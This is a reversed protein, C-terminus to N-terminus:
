TINGILKSLYNAVYDTSFYKQYTERGKNAIPSLEKQHLYAWRISEALSLPDGQDALLCNERDQFKKDEYGKGIVTASNCCLFQLTKGTIVRKGQETNGFPGGLCLDAARIYDPLEHFDIWPIHNVNDLQNNKITELFGKLAKGKGGAVIFKIPLDKLVEVASLIIDMGHLPLFTAYTFVVFNDPQEFIKKKGSPSFLKEDCSMPVVTFKEIPVNFLSSYYTAQSKTDSIIYDTNILISKEIFFLIRAILNNKSFQKKENILSDYPSVFEDFILVNKKGLLLRVFWYIDHGRFNILWLRPNFKNFVKIIKYLTEFVRIINENENRADIVNLNQIKALAYRLTEARLYNKSYYSLVFGIQNQKM